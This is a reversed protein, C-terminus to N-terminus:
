GDRQDLSVSWMTEDCPSVPYAWSWLGCAVRDVTSAVTAVMGEVHGVIAVGGALDDPPHQGEQTAM